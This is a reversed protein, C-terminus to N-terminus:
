VGHSSCMSCQVFLIPCSIKPLKQTIHYMGSDRPHPLQIHNNVFLQIKARIEFIGKQNLSAGGLQAIVAWPIKVVNKLFPHARFCCLFLETIQKVIPQEILEDGTM